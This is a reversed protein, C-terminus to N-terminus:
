GLLDHQHLIGAIFLVTGVLLIAEKAALWGLIVVIIGWDSMETHKRMENVM